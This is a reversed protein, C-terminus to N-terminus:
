IREYRKMRMSRKVRTNEDKVDNSTNFIIDNDELAHELVEWINNVMIVKFNNDILDSYEKKIQNIDEKNEVPCMALKVGARKAGYLKHVLGGIALANGDLDIEGTVAIDRKIKTDTMTSVIGTTIALGASPGDKETSGDPCHIHFGTNGTDWEKNLLDRNKSPILNWAVTKAVSMSERMVKGQSGTLELSLKQKTPISKVEIITIGGTDNTTAYMGCIRGVKSHKSIKTHIIKHYKKLLDNDLIDKTIKIPLNFKKNNVKSNMLKRLNLERGIQYLIEKFKRVGGESTYTNIIHRYVHEDYKIDGNKFGIDKMISPQLYDQAIEIKENTKFGSTRIETIRDMLIPSVHSRDNYSFIFTAKSLDFEIGTFYKDEFHNNQSTDILHMLVNIIEDGKETHSVKDLEDFYIIPNMCKAKMLVDAIKGWKSGIYTYDHGELFSSDKAGGLSIHVFPRNLVKAVGKEILTTKGNGMPGQIGIVNSLSKPNTFNQAIVQLIANKAKKHGYIANDMIKLSNKFHKNIEKQSSDKSLVSKKLKGYPIKLLAEIWSRLKHNDDLSSAESCTEVKRVVEAKVELPMDSELARFLYPKHVNNKISINNLMDLMKNKANSKLSKFYNFDGRSGKSKKNALYKLFNRDEKPLNDYEEEEEYEEEEYEEEEYEEDEEYEDDNKYYYSDYTLKEINSLKLNLIKKIKYMSNINSIDKKFDILANYSVDLLENYLENYLKNSGKKKNHKDYTLNEIIEDIYTNKVKVNNRLKKISLIFSEIFMIYESLIMLDKCAYTYLIGYLNYLINMENDLISEEDNKEDDTRKRKRTISQKITQEEESSENDSSIDSNSNDSSSEELVYDEDSDENKKPM